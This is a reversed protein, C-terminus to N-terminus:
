VTICKQWTTFISLEYSNYVCDYYDQLSISAKYKFEFLLSITICCKKQNVFLDHKSITHKDCNTPM